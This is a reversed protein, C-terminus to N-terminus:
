NIIALSEVNMVLESLAEGSPLILAPAIEFLPQLVFARTTLGKHPITLEPTDFVEDGFLLIDLDITRPGWHERWTRKQAQEIRQLECLLELPKLSTSLLVVANLFDRQDQPGLPKSLYISSVRTVKSLPIENLNTIGLEIQKAPDDLNSGVGIFVRKM